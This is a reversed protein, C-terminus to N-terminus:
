CINFFQFDKMKQTKVMNSFGRLLRDLTMVGQWQRNEVTWNNKCKVLGNGRLAADCSVQCNGFCHGSREKCADWTDTVITVDMAGDQQIETMEQLHIDMGAVRTVILLQRGDERLGVKMRKQWVGNDSAACVIMDEGNKMREGTFSTCHGNPKNVHLTINDLGQTMGWVSLSIDQQWEFIQVYEVDRTMRLQIGFCVTNSYPLAFVSQGDVKVQVSSPLLSPSSSGCVYAGGDGVTMSACTPMCNSDKCLTQESCVNNHRISTLHVSTQQLSLSCTTDPRDNGGWFTVVNEPQIYSLQIARTNKGMPYSGCMHIQNWRWSLKGREHCVDGISLTVNMLRGEDIVGLTINQDSPFVVHDLDVCTSNKPMVYDPDHCFPFTQLSFTACMLNAEHILRTDHLRLQCGNGHDHIFFFLSIVFLYKM